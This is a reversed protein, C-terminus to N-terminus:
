NERTVGPCKQAFYAVSGELFPGCEIESMTQNSCNIEVSHSNKM